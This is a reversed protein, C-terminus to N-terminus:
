TEPYIPSIARPGFVRSTSTPLVASGAASVVLLGFLSVEVL